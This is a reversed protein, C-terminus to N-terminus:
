ERELDQKLKLLEEVAEDVEALAQVKEENTFKRGGPSTVHTSARIVSAVDGVESMVGMLRDLVDSKTHRPTGGLDALNQIYLNELRPLFVRPEGVLSRACDLSPAVVAALRVPDNPNSAKYLADICMGTAAELKDAPVARITQHILAEISGPQRYVTM